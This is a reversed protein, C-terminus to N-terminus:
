PHNAIKNNDKNDINLEYFIKNLLSYGKIIFFMIIGILFFLCILLVYSGFNGKQGKFTFM